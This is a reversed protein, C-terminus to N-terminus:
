TKALFKTKTCKKLGKEVSEFNTHLESNKSLWISTKFFFNKKARILV